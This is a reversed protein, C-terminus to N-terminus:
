GGPWRPAPTPLNRVNTFYESLRQSLCDVVPCELLGWKGISGDPIGDSSRHVQPDREYMGCLFFHAALPLDIGPERGRQTPLVSQSPLVLDGIRVPHSTVIDRWASEGASPVAGAFTAAGLRSSVRDAPGSEKAEVTQWGAIRLLQELGRRALAAASRLAPDVFLRISGSDTM